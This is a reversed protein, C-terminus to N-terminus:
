PAQGDAGAFDKGHVPLERVLPAACFSRGGPLAASGLVSAGFFAPPMVQRTPSQRVAGPGEAVTVHRYHVLECSRLMPAPPLQAVKRDNITDFARNSSPQWARCGVRRAEDRCSAARGIAPSEM